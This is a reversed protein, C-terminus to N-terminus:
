QNTPTAVFSSAGRVNEHILSLQRPKEPLPIQDLKNEVILKISKYSLANVALARQAALELRDPGVSKALRLIGLCSRFGQEPYQRRNMIAEVLQATAPGTTRAWDIVRQPTWEAYRRHTSPMHEKATSHSNKIWLRAHSAIRRGKFFVEITKYTQRYELKKRAYQYPVSYHCGEIDVHYDLNVRAYGIRTYEYPTMPLPKLAPKDMTEFKTLRSGPMKKFPRNNLRELLERISANLEPLSFFKRERLVAIIWMTAVRVAVEAVAKDRPKRVRAPIVAAGFHSAMHQFDPHIDPEYPCPKNVVPKPNDPIIIESAGGYYGFANAHGICWAESNESFFAEAYTYSSAGLACVFIHAQSVEGTHPNTVHLKSGAFDSFLKEGARHEQRMVVDVTKSWQRYFDCYQSYQYGDPNEWKYKEWLLALTAGKQKLKEYVESFDPLPRRPMNNQQPPFLLKELVADDYDDPLPWSLQAAQARYIYDAVTSRSISCSTAIQRRTLKCDWSLRLIERIKRM